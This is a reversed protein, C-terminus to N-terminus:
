IDADATWDARFFVTSNATAMAQAYGAEASVSSFSGSSMNSYTFAGTLTPPIRKTAHYPVTTVSFAGSLANSQQFSASGKEYYRQCAALEREIPRHEFPSAASGAELQVATVSMSAANSNIFSSGTVGVLNASIWAGAVGLLTAGSILAFTLILGGTNGTPWTGSVDGPITITKKEWTNPSNITFNFPYSRTTGGNRISGSYTGAATCFVWFSLTVPKAGVTGWL